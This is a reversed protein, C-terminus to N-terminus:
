ALTLLSTGLTLPARWMEKNHGEHMSGWSRSGVPQTRSYDAIVKKSALGCIFCNSYREMIHLENMILEYNHQQLQESSINWKKDFVSTVLPYYVQAEFDATLDDIISSNKKFIKYDRRNVATEINDEDAKPIRSSKISISHADIPKIKPNQTTLIWQELDVKNSVLVDWGPDPDKYEDRRIQDYAVVQRGSDSLYQMIAISAIEGMIGDDLKEAISRSNMQGRDITFALRRCVWKVAELAMELRVTVPVPRYDNPM